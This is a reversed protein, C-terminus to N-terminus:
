DPQELLEALKEETLGNAAAEAALDNMSKLLGEVRWRRFREYEDPSLIMAVDIEKDRLIVGEQKAAELMRDFSERAEKVTMTRM